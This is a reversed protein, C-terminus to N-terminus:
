GRRLRPQVLLHTLDSVTFVILCIVGMVLVYAQVAPYDHAHIAKLIWQGMGPLAFVHEAVASGGLIAMLYNSWLPIMAAVANPLVHKWAAFQYSFGKARAVTFYAEGFAELLATRLLRANMMIAGMAISLSPLILSRPGTLGSTPLWHLTEAFLFILGLALLFNPVAAFIGSLWLFFRDAFSDRHLALWYGLILSGILMVAMAAASLTLTVPLRLQLESLISRGTMYSTGINGSFVARLWLGYQSWIPLNLGLAERVRNLQEDTPVSVGDASLVAYAPDGPAIHGLLFSLVTIGFLTLLIKAAHALLNSVVPRM